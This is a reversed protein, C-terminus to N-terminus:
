LNNLEFLLGFEGLISGFEGSNHSSNDLLTTRIRWSLHGSNTEPGLERRGTLSLQEMYIIKFQTINVPLLTRFVSKEFFYKFIHRAQNNKKYFM